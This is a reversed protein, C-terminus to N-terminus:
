NVIQYEHKFLDAAYVAQEAIRSLQNESVIGIQSMDWTSATSQLDRNLVLKVPQYFNLEISFPYNTTVSEMINIHIHLFPLQDSQILTEDDLISASLEEFNEVIKDRIEGPTLGNVKLSYPKEINVVIGFEQIGNLSARERIVENQAITTGNFFFLMLLFIASYKM